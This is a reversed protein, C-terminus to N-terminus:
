SLTSDHPATHPRTNDFSVETRLALHDSLANWPAGSLAQASSAKLGRLYIRDLSFLPFFSPFTKAYRGHISRHAEHVGLGNIIRTSAQERWDNFDGAIILPATLPANETLEKCIRTLQAQRGGEFLNLHLCAVHLNSALGPIEIEAHLMGREELPNTSLDVNKWRSIPFMSLIANGHHGSYYVANKGYAFHTWIEDALFEFQSSTPWEAIKSAHLDHSGQVEQLFVLHAGTSRIAAKIRDLVFSRNGLTFGKHINYSLITIPNM